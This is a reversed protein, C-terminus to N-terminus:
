EISFREALGALDFAIRVADGMGRLVLRGQSAALRRRAADLALLGASSVYDVEEIDIVLGDDSTAQITVPVRELRDDLTVLSHQEVDGKPDEAVVILRAVGGLVGEDLGVLRKGTEVLAPPEEAPDVPDEDVLAEIGLACSTRVLREPLIQDRGCRGPGVEFRGFPTL